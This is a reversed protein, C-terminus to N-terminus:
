TSRSSSRGAARCHVELRDMQKAAAFYATTAVDLDTEASLYRDYPGDPEHTAEVVEASIDDSTRRGREVPNARAIRRARAANLEYDRKARKYAGRARALEEEARAYEVAWADLEDLATFLNFDDPLAAPLPGQSPPPWATRRVDTGPGHQRHDRGDGPRRSTEDLARGMVRPDIGHRLDHQGGGTGYPERAPDYVSPDAAM